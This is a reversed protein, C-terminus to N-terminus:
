KLLAEFYDFYVEIGTVSFLLFSSGVFFKAGLLTLLVLWHGECPCTHQDLLNLQVKLGECSM